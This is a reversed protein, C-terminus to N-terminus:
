VEEDGEIEVGDELVRLGMWTKRGAGDGGYAIGAGTNSSMVAAGFRGKAVETWRTEKEGGSAEELSMLPPFRPVPARELRLTLSPFSPPFPNLGLTSTYIVPCAFTSQISKLSTLIQPVLNQPLEPPVKTPDPPLRALDQSLRDPWYFSSVSDLVLVGLSYRSSPPSLSLLYAPLSKLIELVQATSHPRFVHVLSLCQGM